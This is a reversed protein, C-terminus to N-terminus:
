LSECKGGSTFGGGHIWIMVPLLEAADKRRPAWINLTLCDESQEQGPTLLFDKFYESCVTKQGNSYQLCSPGFWSADITQNTRRKTIPPRFRATGVPPEAYPIGGFFRVETSNPWSIGKVSFLSAHVLLDDLETGTLHGHASPLLLLAAMKFIKLAAMIHYNLTRVPQEYRLLTKFISATTKSGLKRFLYM